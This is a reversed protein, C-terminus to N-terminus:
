EVAQRLCAGGDGVRRRAGRAVALVAFDVPVALFERNYIGAAPHYIGVVDELRFDVLLHLKGYLLGVFYQKHDIGHVAHGVKVVMHGLYQAAAALGHYQHGVFNVGVFPYVVHGFKVRESEALWVRHRCDVAVAGAVEEVFHHLLVSMAPVVRSEM